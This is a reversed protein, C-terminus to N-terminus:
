PTGDSLFITPRIQTHSCPSSRSLMRDIQSVTERINKQAEPKPCSAGQIINNDGLGLEEAPDAEQRARGGDGKVVDVRM